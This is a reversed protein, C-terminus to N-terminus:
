ALTPCITVNVDDLRTISVGDASPPISTVAKGTSRVTATVVSWAGTILEFAVRLSTESAGVLGPDGCFSIFKYQGPAFSKGVPPQTKGPLLQMDDDEEPPSPPPPPPPTIGRIQKAIAIIASRQSARPGPGPCSHGGWALGGLAHTGLGEGSVSDTVQLPFNGIRSLLETLQGARDLQAQTYPNYTNADDAMECSYWNPNGAAEAWAIGGRVSVWQIIEGDQAIGFHASAQFSPNMFVSDTGPLNGVMTHFILGSVGSPVQMGWSSNPTPHHTIGNVWGGSETLKPPIM